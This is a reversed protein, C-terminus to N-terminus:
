YLSYVSFFVSVCFGILCFGINLEDLLFPTVGLRVMFEFVSTFPLILDIDFNIITFDNIIIFYIFQFM